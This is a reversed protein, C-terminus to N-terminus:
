QIYAQDKFLLIVVIHKAKLICKSSICEIIKNCTYEKEDAM